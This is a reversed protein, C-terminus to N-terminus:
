VSASPLVVRSSHDTRRLSRQRSVCMVWLLCVEMCVPPMRVRLGLLSSGASWRTLGRPWRSRRVCIRSEFLKSSVLSPDCFESIWVISRCFIYLTEELCSLARFIVQVASITFSFHAFSCHEVHKTLLTGFRLITGTKSPTDDAVLQAAFKLRYKIRANSM